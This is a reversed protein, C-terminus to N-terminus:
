FTEKNKDWWQQWRRQSARREDAAGEPDFPIDQGSLKRLSGYATHRVISEPDALAAVLAAVVAAQKFEALGEVTLRRVFMDSDNVMGVLVEAVAPAKSQILRDVAEFRTGPDGDKLREVDRALDAPLATAPAAQEPDAVVPPAEEVASAEGASAPARSAVAELLGRGLGRVEGAVAQLGDAQQRQADRVEGLQRGLQQCQGMANEVVGTLRAEREVSAAALQQLDDRLREVAATPSVEALRAEIRPLRDRQEGLSQEMGVLRGQLLSVEASLRWDIFMAAGAIGALIVLGLGLVGVRSPAGDAQAGAPGRLEGLCCQGIVRGRFRPAVRTDLDRQPVSASCLDCFFVELNDQM